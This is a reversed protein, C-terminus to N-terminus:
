INQYDGIKEYLSGLYFHSDPNNYHRAVQRLYVDKAKSWSGNVEYHLALQRQIRLDDPASDAAQEFDVTSYTPRSELRAVQRQKRPAIYKMARGMKRRSDTLDNNLDYLEGALQMASLTPKKAQVSSTKIRSGKKLIGNIKSIYSSTTKTPSLKHAKKFDGLAAKYNKAKYRKKAINLYKKAQPSVKASKKKKGKSKKKSRSKKRSSSKKKKSSTKKSTRKKKAASKSSSSSQAYLESTQFPLVTTFLLILIIVKVIWRTHSYHLHVINLKCLHM